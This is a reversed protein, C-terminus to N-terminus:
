EKEFVGNNKPLEDFRSREFREDEPNPVDIVVAEAV